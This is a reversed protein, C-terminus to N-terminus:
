PGPSRGFMLLLAMAGFYSFLVIFILTLAEGLHLAIAKLRAIM